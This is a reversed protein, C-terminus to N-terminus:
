DIEKKITTMVFVLQEGKKAQTSLSQSNCDKSDQVSNSRVNKDSSILQM